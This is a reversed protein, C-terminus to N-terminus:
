DEKVILTIKESIDNYKIEDYTLREKYRVEFNKWNCMYLRFFKDKIEFKDKNEDYLYTIDFDGGGQGVVKSRTLLALPSVILGKINKNLENFYDLSIYEELEDCVIYGKIEIKEKEYEKVFKKLDEINFSINKFNEKKDFNLMKRFARKNDYDCACNVIIPKGILQLMKYIGQNYMTHSYFSELFKLGGCHVGNQKKYEPYFYDEFTFNDVMIKNEKNILQYGYYAGM